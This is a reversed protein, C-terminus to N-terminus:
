KYYWCADLICMDLVGGDMSGLTAMIEVKKLLVQWRILPSGVIVGLGSARSWESGAAAVECQMMEATRCNSIPGTKGFSGGRAWSARVGGGGHVLKRPLEDIRNEKLADGEAGLVVDEAVAEHAPGEGLGELRPDALCQGELEGFQTPCASLMARSLITELRNSVM